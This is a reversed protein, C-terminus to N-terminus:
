IPSRRTYDVIVEPGFGLVDTALRILYFQLSRSLVHFPASDEPTETALAELVRPPRGVTRGLLLRVTM